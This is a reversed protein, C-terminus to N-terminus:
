RSRIVVRRGPWPINSMRIAQRILKKIAPRDLDSADGLRIERVLKTRGRLLGDPDEMETGRGFFLTVWEPSVKIACVAEIGRETPGYSIVLGSTYNYVLELAEPFFARMKKRVAKTTKQMAPTYKSLFTALQQEPTKLFVGERAGM